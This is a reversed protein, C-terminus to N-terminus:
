KGNKLYKEIENTVENVLEKPLNDCYFCGWNFKSKIQSFKFDPYKIFDQFKVDLWDLFEPVDFGEAGYHREELYDKYKENFEKATM